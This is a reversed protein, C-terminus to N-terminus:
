LQNAKEILANGLELAEAKGLGLWTVQTGFDLIVTKDKIGLAMRLGGEDSNDFQGRPFDKTAGLKPKSM